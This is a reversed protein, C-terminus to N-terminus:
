HTSQNEFEHRTTPSREFRKGFLLFVVMTQGWGGLPTNEWCWVEIVYVQLAIASPRLHNENNMLGNFTSETHDVLFQFTWLRIKEMFHGVKLNQLFEVPTIYFEPFLYRRYFKKPYKFIDYTCNHVEFISDWFTPAVCGRFKSLFFALTTRYMMQYIKSSASVSNTVM